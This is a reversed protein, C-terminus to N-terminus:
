CGEPGSKFHLSPPQLATQAEWVSWSTEERVGCEFFHHLSPSVKGHSLSVGYRLRYNGSLSCQLTFYNSRQSFFYLGPTELPVAQERPWYDSRQAPLSVMALCGDQASCTSIPSLSVAPDLPLLIPPSSHLLLSARSGPSLVGRDRSLPLM